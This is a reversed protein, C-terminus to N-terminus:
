FIEPISKFNPLPLDYNVQFGNEGLKKSVGSVVASVCATRPSDWQM